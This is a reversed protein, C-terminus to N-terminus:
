KCAKSFDKYSVSKIVDNEITLDACQKIDDLRLITALCGRREGNVIRVQKGIKSPIVTM